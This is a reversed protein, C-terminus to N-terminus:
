FKKVSFSQQYSVDGLSYGGVAILWDYKLKAMDPLGATYSAPIVGNLIQIDNTNQTRNLGSNTSLTLLTTSQYKLRFTIVSDLLGLGNGQRTFQVTFLIDRGAPKISNALDDNSM